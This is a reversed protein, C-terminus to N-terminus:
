EARFHLLAGVLESRWRRFGAARAQRALRARAPPQFFGALRSLRVSWGWPPPADRVLTTGVLRGGPKLVRRLEKLVAAQDGICHLGNFCLVRDVSAGALPLRTVDAQLLRVRRQLGASRSREAARLLMRRSLDAAVIMGRSDPAGAAFTVGGGTPVDLVVEGKRCALAEAMERYMRPVDAGWLLLGALAALTRAQVGLDYLGGYATDFITPLTKTAQRRASTRPKSPRGGM